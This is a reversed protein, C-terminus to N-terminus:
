EAIQFKRPSVARRLPREIVESPPNFIYCDPYKTRIEKRVQKEHDTTYRADSHQTVSYETCYKGDRYYVLLTKM